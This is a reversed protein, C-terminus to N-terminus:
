QHQRDILRVPLVMRVATASKQLSSDPFSKQDSNWKTALKDTRGLFVAQGLGPLHSLDLESRYRHTLRVYDRSGGLQNFMMLELIRQMDTNTPDWPTVVSADELEKKQTLWRTISIATTDTQIDIQEGPELTRDLRYAWPGFILYGDKLKEDLPNTFRGTLRDLRQSHLLQSNIRKPDIQGQWTGTFSATSALPIQVGRITAQALGGSSRGGEKLGSLIDYQFPASAIVTKSRMGGLGTGPLGEWSIANQQVSIGYPGKEAFSISYKKAVPSYVHNWVRGRVQGTSEFIDIVEVQNFQMQQSKQNYFLWVTFGSFAIVYIPLTLWTLQVNKLVSRLLFYDLACCVLFFLVIGMVVTFSILTVSPFQELATRLQGTIDAYGFSVNLPEKGDQDRQLWRRIVSTSSKWSKLPESEFDLGLLDVRGLGQSRFVLVPQDEIKFQDYRVFGEFGLFPLTQRSSQFVQTKSAAFIELSSVDRTQSVTLRGPTSGSVPETSPDFLWSFQSNELFDKLAQTGSVSMRGGGSVWRKLASGQKESIGKEVGNGAFLVLRRFGSWGLDGVPLQGTEKDKLKIIKLGFDPDASHTTVSSELNRQSGLQVWLAYTAPHIFINSEESPSLVKTFTKEASSKELSVEFDRDQRGIKFYGVYFAKSGIQVPIRNEWVFRVANGEGDPATVVLSPQDPDAEKVEVRVEAWCGLRMHGAIGIQVNRLATKKPDQNSSVQESSTAGPSQSGPQQALSRGSFIVLCGLVVVCGVLFRLLVRPRSSIAILQSDNKQMSEKKM